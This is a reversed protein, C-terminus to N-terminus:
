FATARLPDDRLTEGSIQRCSDDVAHCGAQRALARIPVGIRHISTIKCGIPCGDPVVGTTRNRPHQKQEFNWYCRDM